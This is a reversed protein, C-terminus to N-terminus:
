HMYQEIMPRWWSETLYGSGVEAAASIAFLSPIGVSDTWGPGAALHYALASGGAGIGVNLASHMPANLLTLSTIHPAIYDNTLQGLAVGAAAALGGFVWVPVHVGKIELGLGAVDPAFLHTGAAGIGFATLPRAAYKTLTDSSM